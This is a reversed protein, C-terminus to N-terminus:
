DGKEVQAPEGSVQERIDLQQEYEHYRIVRYYEERTMMQDLLQKQTGATRLSHYGSKAAHLLMRFITLPYLVIQVGASQLEEATFLPTKGFETINALIPVKVANAIAQYQSLDTLAEPFIADAGAEICGKARAIAEEIGEQAFSDTRAIIYFGSSGRARSAAQIRAAMEQRSVIRKNPRHGCRKPLDQDEIHCGAAGAAILEHVTREISLESGFGTDADVILPLDVVRCIRRAEEAVETLSTMGLDPLGFSATAVGSGSLYLARFGADRALMAM